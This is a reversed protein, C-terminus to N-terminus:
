VDIRYQYDPIRYIGDNLIKNGLYRFTGDEDFRVTLEHTIVSDNSIFMDCVADVTLTVTGDHNKKIETVEPFSTGFFTPAYNICGLAAWKYTKKDKDFVAYERIQEATVPLYEMILNEFDEKPIGNLYYESQFEKKYKMWYLYEYMGNYDLKEMHDADWDSCLINNGQYGLDRVCKESIERLEKSMPKIRVLCSGDVIETVEPPEPVCLEYSLWGKDTYIWEKIRAYSINTMEGRNGEKWGLRASLVYMQTGDFIYKTRELGGDKQVKYVVASGEKGKLCNQLFKEVEEYHEMNSYKVMTTVPYGSEQIKNQIMLVTEDTLVINTAEGKDAHLYIDLYLEMVKKCDEEAEKSESEDVVLNYGKKWQEALKKKATNADAGQCIFICLATM